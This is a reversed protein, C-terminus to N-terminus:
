FPLLLKLKRIGEFLNGPFKFSPGNEPLKITISDIKDKVYHTIEFIKRLSFFISKELGFLKYPNTTNSPENLARESYMSIPIKKYLAGIKNYIFTFVFTHSPCNSFVRLGYDVITKSRENEDDIPYFEIIIDYFVDEVFNKNRESPLRLKFVYSKGDRFAKIEIKKAIFADYRKMFNDIILKSHSASGAPSNFNRITLHKPLTAM